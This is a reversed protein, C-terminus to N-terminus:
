AASVWLRRLRPLGYVVAPGWVSLFGVVRPEVASWFVFWALLSGGIMGLYAAIACGACVAVQMSVGRWWPVDACRYATVINAIAIPLLLAWQFVTHTSGVPASGSSVYLAFWAAGILLYTAIILLCARGGSLWQRRRLRHRASM